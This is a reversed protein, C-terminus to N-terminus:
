SGSIVEDPRPRGLTVLSWVFAVVLGIRLLHLQQLQDYVFSGLVDRGVSGVLLMVSATGLLWRDTSQRGLEVLLVAVVFLLVVLQHHWTVGSILTSLLFTATVEVLSWETHRRWRLVLVAAWGGLAALALFRYVAARVAAGADVVFYPVQFTGNAPVHGLLGYVLTALNYNDARVRVGGALFGRLVSDVFATLDTVGQPVGRWVVPLLVVLVSGLVLGLTARRGVRLVLWVAFLVPMVKIGTAMAVLAGALLARDRQVSVVAGLVLVLILLNVQGWVFNWQVFPFSFTVAIVLALRWRSESYATGLAVATLWMAGLYLATNVLAFARYAHEVPLLALAQFLWAAFPPYLFTIDIAVAPYLQDGSMFRAGASWFVAFDSQAAAQSSTAWAGLAVAGALLTPWHKSIPRPISIM